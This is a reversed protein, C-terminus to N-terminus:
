FAVDFGEYTGGAVGWESEVAEVHSLRPGEGLDVLLQELGSLQGEAVVEVAGDDPLNRVYGALGLVLAIGALVLTRHTVHM